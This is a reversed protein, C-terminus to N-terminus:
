IGHYLKNRQIYTQSMSTVFLFAINLKNRALFIFFLM